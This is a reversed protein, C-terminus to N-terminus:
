PYRRIQQLLFDFLAPAFKGCDHCCDECVTCKSGNGTYKKADEEVAKWIENTDVSSGSAARSRKDFYTQLVCRATDMCKCKPSPEIDKHLGMASGEDLLGFELASLAIAQAGSVNRDALLNHM